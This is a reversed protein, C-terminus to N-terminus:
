KLKQTYMKDEDLIIYSNNTYAMVFIHTDTQIFKFDINHKMLYLAWNMSWYKCDKQNLTYEYNRVLYKHYEELSLDSYMESNKNYGFNNTHEDLPILNKEIMNKKLSHLLFNNRTDEGFLTGIVLGFMVLLTLFVFLIVKEINKSDM